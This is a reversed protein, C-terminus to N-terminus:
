TGPVEVARGSELSEIAAEALILAALGDRGSVPPEDHRAVHDLFVQVHEVLSDYFAGGSTFPNPEIVERRAPDTRTAIVRRTVDEVVISGRTGGLETWEATHTQGERYGAMITGISGTAFQLSVSVCKVLEGSKRLGATAIVRRFEGGFHRLLDFHHTLLTTFIVHEHRAVAPPPISDSVRVLCTELQGIAGEEILRRATQYGFAFRRNYDVALRVGREAAARVIKMAEAANEALPKECFVHCGAAIAALAPEVHLHDPTAITVADPEEGALLQRLDSYSKASFREATSACRQREPECVAVLAAYPSDAIARAHLTGIPGSGIVAV